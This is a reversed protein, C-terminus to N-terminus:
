PLSLSRIDILIDVMGHRCEDLTERCKRMLKKLVARVVKIRDMLHDLEAGDKKLAYAANHRQLSVVSVFIFRRIKSLRFGLKM